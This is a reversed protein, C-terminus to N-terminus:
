YSNEIRKGDLYKGEYILNGFKDYEKGDGNRKGNLYEGEFQIRGNNFYEKGYGNRKGNLYEGQFASKEYNNAYEIGKKEKEKENIEIEAYYGEYGKNLFIIRWIGILLKLINLGIYINILISYFPSLETSLNVIDENIYLKVNSIGSKTTNNMQISSLISNNEKPRIEILCRNDPMLEIKLEQKSNPKM